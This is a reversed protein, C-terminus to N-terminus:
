WRILATMLALWVVVTGLLCLSLRRIHLAYSPDIKPRSSDIIWRVSVREQSAAREGFRDPAASNATIFGEARLYRIFGERQATTLNDEAACILVGASISEQVLLLNEPDRWYFRATGSATLPRLSLNM